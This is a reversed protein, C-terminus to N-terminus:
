PRCTSGPRPLVPAALLPCHSMIPGQTLPPLMDYKCRQWGACAPMTGAHDNGTPAVLPTGRTRHSRYHSVNVAQILIHHSSTPQM